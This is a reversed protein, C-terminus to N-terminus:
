EDVLHTPKSHIDISYIDENGMGGNKKLSMWAKKGKELPVFFQNDGTTNIPYGINVPTKWEKNEVNSYFIDFGGMNYHGKSSFYITQGNNVTFPTTEDFETNITEGLNKPKKWETAGKESVWIDFGGEGRRRDSSYFIKLGDDSFSAHIENGRTNIKDSVPIAKNWTAGNYESIYIDDNNNQKKILLLSKGDASLGTPYMDGDSGVMPGINVPKIWAGNQFTTFFIADYFKLSRMFVLTNGDASLVPNFEALESNVPAGVNHQSISTPSDKIIKARETSEIENEVVTINYEGEYWPSSVFKDYTELAKDLENNIRYANGLYFLAHLPARRETFSKRKYEKKETLNQTAKEFYPIGQPEKGPLNLYCVGTKFNFNANDPDQNILKLYYYLAEQYDESWFFYEADEFLEKKDPQQALCLSYSFFNTLIFILAYNM